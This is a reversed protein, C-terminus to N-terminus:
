AWSDRNKNMTIMVQDRRYIFHIHSKYIIDKAKNYKM